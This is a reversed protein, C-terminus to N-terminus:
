MMNWCCVRRRTNGGGFFHQQGRVLDQVSFYQKENIVPQMGGFATEVHIRKQTLLECSAFICFYM